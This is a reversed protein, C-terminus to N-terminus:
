NVLYMVYDVWQLDYACLRGLRVQSPHERGEQSVFVVYGAIFSCPRSHLLGVMGLPCVIYVGLEGVWTGRGSQACSM